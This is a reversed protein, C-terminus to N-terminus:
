AGCLAGGIHWVLVLIIAGQEILPLLRAAEVDGEHEAAQRLGWVAAVVFGVNGPDGGHMLVATLWASASITRIFGEVRVRSNSSTAAPVLHAFFIAILAILTVM